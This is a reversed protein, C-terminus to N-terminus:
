ASFRLTRRVMSLTRRVRSLPHHPCLADYIEDDAVSRLVRGRYGPDYPDRFWDKVRGGAGTADPTAFRELELRGEEQLMITVLAERAGTMGHERASSSIVCMSSHRPILLMGTYMHGDGDQKKYVFQFMPAPEQEFSDGSVIAGGNGEAILRSETRWGEEDSLPTAPGAMTITVLISDGENSTWVVQEDSRQREQWGTTDFTPFPEASQASRDLMGLLRRIVRRISVLFRHRGETIPTLDQM